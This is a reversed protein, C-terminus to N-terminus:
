DNTTIISDRNNENVIFIIIGVSRYQISFATKERKREVEWWNPRATHDDIVERRLAMPVFEGTSAKSFVVCVRTRWEVPCSGRGACTPIQYIIVVRVHCLCVWVIYCSMIFSKTVNRQFGVRWLLTCLWQCTRRQYVGM